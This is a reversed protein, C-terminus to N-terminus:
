ETSRFLLLLSRTNDGCVRDGNCIDEEQVIVQVINLICHVIYLTCNYVQVIYLTCMYVQVIYVRHGWFTCVSTDTEINNLQWDKSICSCSSVMRPFHMEASLFIEGTMGCFLKVFM